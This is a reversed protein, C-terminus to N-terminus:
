WRARRRDPHPGARGAGDRRDDHLRRGRARGLDFGIDPLDHIPFAGPMLLAGDPEHVVAQVDRDTEDYIEGVIEEVLDEMTIIGDIAGREDVVM